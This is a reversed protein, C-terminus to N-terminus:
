ILGGQDGISLSDDEVCPDANTSILHVIGENIKLSM